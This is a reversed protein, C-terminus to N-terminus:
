TSIVSQFAWHLPMIFPHHCKIMVNLETLVQAVKRERLLFSKSMIKAAYLSGSDKKRVEVVRSFGGKGILKIPEFHDKCVEECTEEALVLELEEGSTLPELSRDMRTLWYDLIEVNARTKLGVAPRQSRRIAESLLWGCTLMQDDPVEIDSSWAQYTVKVIKTQPMRRESAPRQLTPVTQGM